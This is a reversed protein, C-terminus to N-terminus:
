KSPPPIRGIRLSITGLETNDSERLAGPMPLLGFHMLVAGLANLSPPSNKPESIWARNVAVDIGIPDYGVPFGFKITEPVDWKAQKFVSQFDTAFNVCDWATNACWIEIKQGPFPSLATVLAKKESDTLRRAVTQSRLDDIIKRDDETQKKQEADRSATLEDKRHSYKFHLVEAGVLAALIVIMAIEFVTTWRSVSELSDWGPLNDM